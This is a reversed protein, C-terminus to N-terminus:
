ILERINSLTEAESFIPNDYPWAFRFRGSPDKEWKECHSIQNGPIAVKATIEGETNYASYRRYVNINRVEEAVGEVAVAPRPAVVLWCYYLYAVPARNFQSGFFLATRRARHAVNTAMVTNREMTGATLSIFPTVTYFPQNTSPDTQTFHNVHLHLNAPTLKDRRQAPTIRHVGRWWNCMIGQRDDIIKKATADDPLWLGKICWQVMM